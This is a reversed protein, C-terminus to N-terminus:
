SHTPSAQRISDALAACASGAPCAAREIQVTVHDIGFREDALAHIATLAETDSSGPDLVAHATLVHRHSTLTWVHLDHVRSVGPVAVLAEEVEALDIHDPTGELLIGLAERVLYWTRPLIFLSIGVSIAPDLWIWGTLSIVGAAAIVGASAMLDSLVEFYAGKLNLSRGAGRHLLAVGVLNALLGVVAIVLMPGSAVPLPDRFRDWAEVLIGASVAVLVMANLLAALIEARHYGYTREPTPPRQAMKMAFLALGLGAADTLMHGADAVLALSGTLLGGVAEVVLVVLTLGLVATLRRRDSAAFHHHHDHSM